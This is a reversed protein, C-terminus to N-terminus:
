RRTQYLNCDREVKGNTKKNQKYMKLLKMIRIYTFKNKINHREMMYCLRKIVTSNKKLESISDLNKTSNKM